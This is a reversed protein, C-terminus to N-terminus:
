LPAKVRVEASQRVHRQHTGAAYRGLKGGAPDGISRDAARMSTLMRQSIDQLDNIVQQTFQIGGRAFM